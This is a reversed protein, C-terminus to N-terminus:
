QLTVMLHGLTVWLYGFQGWVPVLIIGFDAGHAALGGLAVGFHVWVGDLALFSWRAIGFTAVFDGYYIFLTELTVGFDGECAM